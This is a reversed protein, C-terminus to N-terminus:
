GIVLEQTSQIIHMGAAAFRAFINNAQETYDVVGPVVVPSTCDELLYIKRTLTSDVQQIETFLDDITWAVCHSKAQGAIIVADYELLQQILSTNKQGIPQGNFGTLIEPRLISYNETLPNEGKLEFQTQSKRVISHFFVAEEVSAVLAHGIGGLMSHYPWVTLPYKGNQSLQQVYYFAQKALLDYDGNTISNAVAPNVQWIGKEIDTVTINTAAPTPHEGQTNIWFIPHFIQMTTHTDLTPIIKTIVGLNRYIFACLRQNDEVAGTGTQGGVFLEFDPICFTNQVDILLLCVRNKDLASPQIQQQVAYTEAEAAIKQYPVRWIEGVKAPNFHPPIPIQTNM